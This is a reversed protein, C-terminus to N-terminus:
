KFINTITLKSAQQGVEVVSLAVTLRLLKKRRHRKAHNYRAIEAAKHILQKSERLAPKSITVPLHSVPYSLKVTLRNHKITLKYDGAGTVALGTVGDALQNRKHSFGLGAPLSLTFSQIPPGNTGAYLKFRLRPKGQALGSLTASDARPPGPYVRSEVIPQTVNFINLPIDGTRAFAPGGAFLTQGDLALAVVDATSTLTSPRATLAGSWGGAPKTFLRIESPCLPCFSHARGSARWRWVAITQGSTAVEIPFDGTLLRAAPHVAGSWGRGPETYVYTTGTAYWTPTLVSAAPVTGSWGGPPETFVDATQGAITKGAIKGGVVVTRGEVSILAPDGHPAALKATEHLTGSWGGGPETFVDVEERYVPSNRFGVAVITAGSVGVADFHVAGDSATLKAAQPVTGSWGGTPATFVDIANPDGLTSKPIAAIAAITPGSVAPQSLGRGDSDSLM